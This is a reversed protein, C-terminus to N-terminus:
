AVRARQCRQCRPPASEPLTRPAGSFRSAQSAEAKAWAAASDVKNPPSEDVVVIFASDVNPEANLWLMLCSARAREAVLKAAPRRRFHSALRTRCNWDFANRNTVARHRRLPRHNGGDLAGRGTTGGGALRCRHRSALCCGFRRLGIAAAPARGALHRRLFGFRHNGERERLSYRFHAVEGLWSIDRGLATPRLTEGRGDDFIPNEHVFVSIGKRSKM